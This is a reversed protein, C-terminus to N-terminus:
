SLVREQEGVPTFLGPDAVQVTENVPAAWPVPNATVRELLLVFTATGAPTFTADPDVLALKVAVTAAELKSPTAVIVAEAFPICIVPDRENLAFTSTLEKIQEGDCSVGLELALQTMLRLRAGDLENLMLRLVLLEKSVTGADTMAVEPWDVMLKWTTAPTGADCCVTFTIVLVPPAVAWADIEMMGPAGGVNVAGSVIVVLAQLTVCNAAM